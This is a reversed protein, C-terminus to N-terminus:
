QEAAGFTAVLARHDSALGWDPKVLVYTQNTLWERAMGRSLLVFDIRSYTDSPAYYHTWTVQRKEAVSEDAKDNNREAPRTDVLKRKGRGVVAKVSASDPTDNLDGLVVLNADPERELREEIKERLVKAEELRLEAEDAAPVPRKSKLHATILTFVYNSSVQVDVEAIGRSLRFRRGTLLFNDNTHSRSAVFPFKSLVAVQINTDAGPVHEWYPFDCGEQKLGERLELLAAEGGVEQLALVDAGTTRISERVKARALPTKAPRKDTATVLYGELNFTAVRFTDAAWAGGAFMLFYFAGVKLFYRSLAGM